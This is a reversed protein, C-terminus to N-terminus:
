EGSLVMFTLDDSQPELHSKCRDKIWAIQDELPMTGSQVLWRLFGKLGLERGIDKKEGKKLRGETFGDTYLYLRSNKISFLRAPHMVGPLVGLPPDAPEIKTIKRDDVIFPPLHGVNVINLDNTAPDLWGGVFTVFMGRVATECLENNMLQAITSIDDVVKCLCRFLSIAKAMLLAASTGKGSVDGLCFCITGDEKTFYDYFDGSLHFAPINFAGVQHIRGIDPQLSKQIERAIDLEAELRAAYEDRQKLSNQLQWTLEQYSINDEVLKRNAQGMVTEFDVQSDVPINLTDSMEKVRIPLLSLLSDVKDGTLAFLMKSKKKLATMAGSKDHCTYFANCLDSLHMIGALVSPKKSRGYNLIKNKNFSLHHYGIALTYSEPLNWKGALLAGVSDHTTHFLEEEMEYRRWPLNSRLLPWRDVKEPEMFFLVMLGIDQLMGATFAEEAPGNLLCALQKAAVGRRISDEWFIDIDFGPIEKKSLAEKVAFCLVLNRLSSLGMAVVAGSITKVKQRLGFFASNVIGLLQATLAPNVSILRTLMDIRTDDRLSYQILQMAQKGPAPLDEPELDHYFAQVM